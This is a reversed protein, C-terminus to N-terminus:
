FQIPIYRPNVGVAGWGREPVSGTQTLQCLSPAVASPASTRRNVLFPFPIPDFPHRTDGFSVSTMNSLSLLLSSSSSVSNNSLYPSILRGGVRRQSMGHSEKAGETRIGAVVGAGRGEIQEISWFGKIVHSDELISIAVVLYNAAPYHIGKKDRKGGWGEGRRTGRRGDGWVPGPLGIGSEKIGGSM